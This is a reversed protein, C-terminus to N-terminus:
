RFSGKVEPRNLVVLAWIGLPLGICCCNGCPLLALIAATMVSGYNELRKMKLGGMLIAGAFCAAVIARPIMFGPKTLMEMNPGSGGMRPDGVPLFKVGALGLVLDLVILFLDLSGLVILAVAPGSVAAEAARRRGGGRRRRRPREEQEEEEDPVEELEDEEIEEPPPPRRRASSPRPERVIRESEVPEDTEATFTTQCKPCKVTKGLLNEPVRLAANCEPCRVQEPM